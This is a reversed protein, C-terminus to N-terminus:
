LGAEAIDYKRNDFTVGTHLWNNTLTFFLLYNTSHPKIRSESHLKANNREFTLRDYIAGRQINIFALRLKGVYTTCMKRRFYQPIRHAVSYWWQILKSSVRSNNLYSRNVPFSSECSITYLGAKQIKNHTIPFTDHGCAVYRRFHVFGCGQHTIIWEDSAHWLNLHLVKSRKGTIMRSITTNKRSKM